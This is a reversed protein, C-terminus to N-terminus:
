HQTHAHHVVGDITRLLRDFEFPKRIVADAGAIREHGPPIAASVVIVPTSGVVPDRRIRGLLTIGDAGPIMLDLLILDPGQGIDRLAQAADRALVVEHGEERLFSEYLICLDPNDEVVLIRLHQASM